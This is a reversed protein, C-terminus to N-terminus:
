AKTDGACTTGAAGAGSTLMRWCTALSQILALAKSRALAAAIAIPALAARPTGRAWAILSDPAGNGAGRGSAARRMWIAVAWPWTGNGIVISNVRAWPLLLINGSGCLRPK